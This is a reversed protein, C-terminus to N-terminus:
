GHGLEQVVGKQEALSVLKQFSRNFRKRVADETAGVLGAMEAFTLGEMKRQIILDREGEDLELLLNDVTSKITHKLMHQTPSAGGDPILDRLHVHERSVLLSQDLSREASRDRKGAAAYDLHDRITNETIRCLWHLFSGESTPEFGELKRFAHLFVDQLVDMSQLRLRERLEQNLRLRVIRLVREQYRAFLANLAGKDGGKGDRILCLTVSDIPQGNSMTLKRNERV